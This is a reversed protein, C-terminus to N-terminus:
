AKRRKFYLALSFMGLASFLAYTSPEPVAITESITNYFPSLDISYTNTGFFAHEAPARSVSVIIGSLIWNEIADDWTFLAGGSDGTVARTAYISNNQFPTVHHASGNLQLTHIVSNEGWRVKRTSNTMYGDHISYPASDPKTASYKNDKGYYTLPTDQIVSRGAGIMIADVNRGIPSSAIILSPLDPISNLKFLTLDASGFNVISSTDHTYSIGNLTISGAGVHKATLVWGNGIYVGSAGRVIGVNSFGPDSPQGNEGTPATTHGTPDSTTVVGFSTMTLTLISGIFLVKRIM